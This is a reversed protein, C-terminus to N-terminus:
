NKYLGCSNCADSYIGSCTANKKKGSRDIEADVEKMCRIGRKRMEENAGVDSQPFDKKRFVINFFMGFVGIGLVIIAALFVKM